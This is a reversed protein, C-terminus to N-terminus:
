SGLHEGKEEGELEDAESPGDSHETTIDHLREYIADVAEIDYLEKGAHAMAVDCADILTEIQELTLDIRPM